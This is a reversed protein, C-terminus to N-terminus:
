NIQLSQDLPVIQIYTNGDNVDIEDGSLYSYITQNSRGQKTWTIPVAKGNTIYYGDGSGINNLTQRGYSDITTNKVKMIIINKTTYIEKTIADKHPNENVYRQYVKNELDYKYSTEVYSSYPIIVDNADIVGDIEDLNIEKESYNLLTGKSSTLRYNKEKAIAKISEMSTFATHEYAVNLSTDRYFADDTLGNINDVSLSKIDSEAQPSWGFHVYIADNELAYDLFYHRASRVSGIRSTDKDKFIAMLRTLGGEVIAEYVIYADNLGSHNMRAQAHNNVMVAYPRENSSLDIINLKKNNVKPMKFISDLDNLNNYLMFGAVTFLLLCMLLTFKSKRKKKM